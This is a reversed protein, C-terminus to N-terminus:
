VISFRELSSPRGARFPVASTVTAGSKSLTVVFNVGGDLPRGLADLLSTAKVTLQLPPSLVLAKRTTLTVTFTTSNYSAKAMAVPKSKQKKSKAVTVLSYTNINQADASNLAESFQVVIAETTKKGTGIKQVSINEVTAQGPQGTGSSAPAVNVERIV